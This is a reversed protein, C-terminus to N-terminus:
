RSRGKIETHQKTRFLLYNLHFESTSKISINVSKNLLSIEETSEPLINTGINSAEKIDKTTFFIIFLRKIM